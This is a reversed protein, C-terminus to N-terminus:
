MTIWEVAPFGICHKKCISMEWMYGFIKADLLWWLFSLLNTLYLVLLLCLISTLIRLFSILWAESTKQHLRDVRQFSLIDQLSGHFVYQKPHHASRAPLITHELPWWVEGADVEDSPDSFWVSRWQRFNLGNSRLLMQCFWSPFFLLWVKKHVKFAMTIFLIMWQMIMCM